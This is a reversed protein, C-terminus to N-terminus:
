IKDNKHKVNIFVKKIEKMKFLKILENFKKISAEEDINIIIKSDNELINLIDEKEVERNNWLFSGDKRVTLTEKLEIKKEGFFSEPITVEIEDKKQIVGTLLFFILLLFILNIMPILNISDNFEKKKNNKRLRIM